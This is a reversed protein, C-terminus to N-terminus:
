QHVTQSGRAYRRGKARDLTMAVYRPRYGYREIRLNEKKVWRRLDGVGGTMDVIKKETLDVVCWVPETRPQEAVVEQRVVVPPEKIVEGTIIQMGSSVYGKSQATKFTMSRYPTYASENHEKAWEYCFREPDNMGKATLVIRKEKTNVVCWPNIGKM